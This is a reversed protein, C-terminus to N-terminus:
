FEWVVQGVKAARRQVWVERYFLVPHRTYFWANSLKILLSRNDSM